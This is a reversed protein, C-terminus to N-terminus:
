SGNVIKNIVGPVVIALSALMYAVPMGIKAVKIWFSAQKWFKIDEAESILFEKSGDGRLDDIIAHLIVELM